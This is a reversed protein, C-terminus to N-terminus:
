KFMEQEAASIKKLSRGSLKMAILLVGAVGLIVWFANEAANSYAPINDKFFLQIHDGLFVQVVGPFTLAVVTSAIVIRRYTPLYLFLFKEPRARRTLM